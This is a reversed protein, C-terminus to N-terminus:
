FNYGASFLVNWGTSDCWNVNFKVPGAISKIGATVGAAYTFSSQDKLAAAELSLSFSGTVDFRLDMQGVAALPGCSTAGKNYGMFPLQNEYYKGALSGGAYVAYVPNTGPTQWGAYVSSQLTIIRGLPIAASFNASASADGSLFYRGLLSLRIGRHPFCCDDLTNVGGRLFGSFCPGSPTFDGSLGLKANVLSMRTNQLFLDGGAIWSINGGYNIIRGRASVGATPLDKLPKYALSLELAPNNGIKYEARSWWGSLRRTGFGLYGSLYIYEDSDMHVGFGIENVQGKRCEIVLHYPESHGELRCTVAEFAGTGYIRAMLAQIEQAGFIGSTDHAYRGLLNKEEEGSLGTLSIGDIRVKGTMLNTHSSVARQVKVGLRESLGELERRAADANLKGERIIGDVSESDYSLSSYGKSQLDHHIHIDTDALNKAMTRQGWITLNRYGLGSLDTLFKPDYDGPDTVDSGIVIDAGMARAVDVPFNNVCMGDVLVMDGIRVPRFFIPISMTSRLADVLRGGTWYKAASHYLETAVCFFPVPLDRFSISDQYGASVAALVNRINYGELFGDPIGMLSQAIVQKGADQTSGTGSEEAIHAHRRVEAIRRSFDEDDYHFKVNLPFRERESRVMAPLYMEPVNDSMLSTWDFDRVIAELEDASYGLAYLGGVLGGMSTGGVMDVPIGLEELVRIVGIHAVGKAGGGSLVLAVTPRYQRISDMRSRMAAFAASDEQPTVGPVIVGEQAWGPLIACLALAIGAIFRKM